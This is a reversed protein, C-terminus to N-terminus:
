LPQAVQMGGSQSEPQRELRLAQQNAVAQWSRAKLQFYVGFAEIM